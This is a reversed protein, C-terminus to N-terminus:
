KSIITFVSPFFSFSSFFSPVSFSSTFAFFNWRRLSVCFVFRKVINVIKNTAAKTASIM